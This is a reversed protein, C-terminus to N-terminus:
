RRRQRAAAAVRQAEKHDSFLGLYITQGHHHDQAHWKGAQKNWHVGKGPQQRNQGNQQNTAPRLHGYNVCNRVFCRHDLQHGEPIQGVNLEYSFRHAYIKRPNLWFLGYGARTPADTWLWCATEMHEAIPGDKNVKSWFRDVDCPRYSFGHEFM